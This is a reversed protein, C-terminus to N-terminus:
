RELGRFGMTAWELRNKGGTVLQLEWYSRNVGKVNNLGKYRGAVGELGKYGPTVGQLM